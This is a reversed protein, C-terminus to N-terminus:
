KTRCGSNPLLEWSYLQLPLIFFYMDTKHFIISSSPRLNKQMRMPIWSPTPLNPLILPPGDVLHVLPSLFASLFTLSPILQLLQLWNMRTSVIQKAMPMLVPLGLHLTKKRATHTSPTLFIRTGVVSQGALTLQVSHPASNSLPWM